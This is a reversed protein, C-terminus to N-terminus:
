GQFLWSKIKISRENWISSMLSCSSWVLAFAINVEMTSIGPWTSLILSHHWICYVLRILLHQSVSSLEQVPHVHVTHVLLTVPVLKQDKGHVTSWHLPTNKNTLCCPTRAVHTTACASSFSWKLIWPSWHIFWILICFSACKEYKLCSMVPVTCCKVMGLRLICM